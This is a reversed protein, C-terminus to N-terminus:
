RERHTIYEPSNSLQRAVHFIMVFFYAFFSKSLRIGIDRLYQTCRKNLSYRDFMSACDVCCVYVSLFLSLSVSHTPSMTALTHVFAKCVLTSVVILLSSPDRDSKYSRPIECHLWGHPILSTYVTSLSLSLSLIYTFARECVYVCVRVYVHLSCLELLLVQVEFLSRATYSTTNYQLVLVLALLVASSAFFNRALHSSLISVCM